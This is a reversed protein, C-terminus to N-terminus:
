MEVEAVKRSKGNKALHDMIQDAYNRRMATTHFNEFYASYIRIMEECSCM